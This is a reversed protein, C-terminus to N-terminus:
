VSAAPRRDDRAARAGTGVRHAGGRSVPVTAYRRPVTHSAGSPLRHGEQRLQARVLNIFQTRTRVLQERVRLERRRQRQEVGVRHARRYIGLRCAEALARVDRRDMKIHPTAIATCRGYEAFAVIVEHACGELTQAAWDSETSSEVLVRLAPRGEFVGRLAERTTTVRQVLVRQGDATSLVFGAIGRMCISPVMTWPQSSRQAKLANIEVSPAYAGDFSLRRKM